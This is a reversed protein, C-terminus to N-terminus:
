CLAPSGDVANCHPATKALWLHAWCCHFTVLLGAIGHAAALRMHAKCCHLSQTCAPPPTSGTSHSAAGLQTATHHTCRVITCTPQQKSPLEPTAAVCGRRCCTTSCHSPPLATDTLTCRGASSCCSANHQATSMCQVPKHGHKALVALQTTPLNCGNSNSHGAKPPPPTMQGEDHRCGPPKQKGQLVADSRRVCAHREVRCARGQLVKRFHLKNLPAIM